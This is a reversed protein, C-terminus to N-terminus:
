AVDVFKKCFYLCLLWARGFVKPLHGNAMLPKITEKAPVEFKCAM